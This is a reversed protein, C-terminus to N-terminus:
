VLRPITFEVWSTDEHTQVDKDIIIDTMSLLFANLDKTSIEVYVSLLKSNSHHNEVSLIKIPQDKLLDDVDVEVKPKVGFELDMKKKLNAGDDTLMGWLINEYDYNKALFRILESGIGKRKSEIYNISVEGDFVSYDVFGVLEDNTTATARMNHQGHSFDQYIEQIEVPSAIRRLKNIIKIMHEFLYLMLPSRLLNVCVEGGEAWDVDDAHGRAGRGIMLPTLFSM